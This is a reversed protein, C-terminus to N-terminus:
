LKDERTFFKQDTLAERPIAFGMTAYSGNNIYKPKMSIILSDLFEVLGKPEFWFFAKDQLFLYVFHNIGDEAARWPGGPKGNNMNSVREMFFNPTAEMSYTDTKVEVTENNELIIDHIRGDTKAAGLSKYVEIFLKEGVLGINNQSKFNFVKPM